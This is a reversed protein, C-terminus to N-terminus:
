VRLAENMRGFMPQVDRELRHWLLPILLGRFIDAQTFLVSGGDAPSITFSHEGDVLGPIGLRRSGDEM